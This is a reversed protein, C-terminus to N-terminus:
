QDRASAAGNEVNHEVAARTVRDVALAPAKQLALAPHVRRNDVDAHLAPQRAHRAHVAMGPPNPPVAAANNHSATTARAEPNIHKVAVFPSM